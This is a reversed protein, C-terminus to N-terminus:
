QYTLNFRNFRLVDFVVNVLLGLRINRNSAIPAKILAVIKIHISLGNSFNKPIGVLANFKNADIAHQRDMYEKEQQKKTLFLHFTKIPIIIIQM